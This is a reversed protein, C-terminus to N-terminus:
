VTKWQWEGWFTENDSVQRYEQAIWAFPRAISHLSIEHSKQPPPDAQAEGRVVDILTWGGYIERGIRDTGRSCLVNNVVAVPRDDLLCVNDYSLLVCDVGLNWSAMKRLIDEASDADWGITVGGDLDVPTDERNMGYVSIDLILCGICSKLGLTKATSSIQNGAHTGTDRLKSLFRDFEQQPRVNIRKCEILYEKGGETVRFDCTKGANRLPKRDQLDRLQHGKQAKLWARVRNEFHWDEYQEIAVKRLKERRYKLTGLLSPDDVRLPSRVPRQSTRCIVDICGVDLVTRMWDLRVGEESMAYNDTEAKRLYELTQRLHGSSSASLDQPSVQLLAAYVCEIDQAFGSPSQM